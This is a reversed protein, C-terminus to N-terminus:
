RNPGPDHPVLYPELAGPDCLIDEELDWLEVILLSYELDYDAATMTNDLRKRELEELIAAGAVLRSHLEEM